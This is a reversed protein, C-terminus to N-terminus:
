LRYNNYTTTGAMTGTHPSRLADGLRPDEATSNTRQILDKRPLGGDCGLLYWAGEARQPDDLCTYDSSIKDSHKEQIAAVQEPTLTM